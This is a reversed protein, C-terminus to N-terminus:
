ECASFADALLEITCGTPTDLIHVIDFVVNKDIGNLLVYAEAADIINKQKRRGVLEGTPQWRASTRTKVEIIHLENGLEAVIDLEKYRYRWNIARVIYGKQKLFEIAQLEGNKGLDYSLSM